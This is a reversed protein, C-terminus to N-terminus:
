RDPIHSGLTPDFVHGLHLSLAQIGSRVSGRPPLLAIDPQSSKEDPPTRISRPRAPALQTIGDLQRPLQVKFREIGRSLAHRDPQAPAVDPHLIAVDIRTPERQQQGEHRVATQHAVIHQSGSPASQHPRLTTALHNPLVVLHQTGVVERSGTPAGLRMRIVVLNIEAAVRDSEGLRGIVFNDSGVPGRRNIVSTHHRAAPRLHLELARDFRPGKFRLSMEGKHEGALALTLSSGDHASGGLANLQITRPLNGQILRGQQSDVVAQALPQHDSVLNGVAIRHLHIPEVVLDDKRFVTQFPHTATRLGRQSEQGKLVRAITRLRRLRREKGLHQAILQHGM